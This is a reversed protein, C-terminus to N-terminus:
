PEIGKWSAITKALALVKNLDPEGQHPNGLQYVSGHETMAFGQTLGLETVMSTVRIKTTGVLEGVLHAREGEGHSLALMVVSWDDLTGTLARENFSTKVMVAYDLANLEVPTAMRVSGGTKSLSVNLSQLFSETM